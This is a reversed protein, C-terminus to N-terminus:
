RERLWMEALTGVAMRLGLWVRRLGALASALAIALALALLCPIKIM